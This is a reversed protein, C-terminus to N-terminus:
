NLAYTIDFCSIARCTSNSDGIRWACNGANSARSLCYTARDNDNTVASINISTCASPLDDCFGNGSIWTCYGNYNKVSKCYNM